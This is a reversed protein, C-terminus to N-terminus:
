VSFKKQLITIACDYALGYYVIENGEALRLNNRLNATVDKKCGLPAFREGLFLKHPTRSAEKKPLSLNEIKGHICLNNRWCIHQSLHPAYRLCLM